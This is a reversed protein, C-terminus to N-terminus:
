FTKLLWITLGYLLLMSLAALPLAWWFGLGHRLLVPFLLFFALSPLVLWFINHSLGILKGTDPNELYIWIFALISVLPLSALLAALLEHRRSLESILAVILGTILVKAILYLM